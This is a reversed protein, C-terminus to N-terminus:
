VHKGKLGVLIIASDQLRQARGAARGMGPSARHEPDWSSPAAIRKWRGGGNLDTSVPTRDVLERPLTTEITLIKQYFLCNVPGLVTHAAKLDSWATNWTAGKPIGCQVSSWPIFFNPFLPCSQSCHGARQRPCRKSHLPCM